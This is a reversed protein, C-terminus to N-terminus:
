RRFWSQIPGNIESGGEVTVAMGLLVMPGTGEIKWRFKNCRRALIPLTYTTDRSSRVTGKREWLPDDDYKFFINVETGASLHFNFMAKTIYKEQLSNEKLDGSEIMWPIKEEAEGYITHLAGDAIYYGIGGGWTTFQYRLDDEQCWIGKHPDYVLLARAGDKDCSLYYRGGQQCGIGDSLTSEIERSIKKPVAGDFSYVGDRGLYYLTEDVVQISKACGKQVGPMTKSNLQFNSPKSGYMMHISAEKFFIVYGMHSVCGTFDGDSGVTVTYSDTSIGEYVDWNTPDGLKSAYIEHNLSSCAWLRNDHECVFDFDRCERSITIGSAQTFAVRKVTVMGQTVATREITIGSSQMLAGPFGAITFWGTGAQVINHSGNYAAKTCGSITVVDGQHFTEALDSASVKTNGSGAYYEEFTMPSSQTYEREPFAADILISGAGVDEVAVDTVNLDDDYCGIVSVRDGVLFGDPGDIRTQGDEATITVDGVSVTQIPATVVIYDTGIESIVKTVPGGDLRFAEDDVGDIKVGDYQRFVEGIGAATIKTSPSDTGLERFTITDYQTYTAEIATVEGTATNFIAKDPFVIIYAGMGVIQKDSDTVEMGSIEEGNYYCKTGDIWFLHNKWYLGHPKDFEELAESRAPRPAAAPYALSGMNKQAAFERDSIVEREDIGRFETVTRVTKPPNYRIFPLRM